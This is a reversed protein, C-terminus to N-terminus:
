STEGKGSHSLFATRCIILLKYSYIKYESINDPQCVLATILHLHCYSFM